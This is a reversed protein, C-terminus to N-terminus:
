PQFTSADCGASPDFTQISGLISNADKGSRGNNVNINAVVYGSSSSWFTQLQCLIQAAIDACSACTKGLQTALAAGEVLSRHQANVTFFSTGSVEEWLDYGTQPRLENAPIKHLSSFTQTVLHSLIWWETIFSEGINNSM